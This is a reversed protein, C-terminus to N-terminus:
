EAGRRVQESSPTLVGGREALWTLLAANAAKRAAGYSAGRAEAARWGERFVDARARADPSIDAPHPPFDRM